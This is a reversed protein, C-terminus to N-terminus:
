APKKKGIIKKGVSIEHDMKEGIKRSKVYKKKQNKQTKKSLIKESVSKEPKLKSKLSFGEIIRLTRFFNEARRPEIEFFFNPAKPASKLKQFFAIKLPAENGTEIEPGSFRFFISSFFIPFFFGAQVHVDSVCRYLYIYM